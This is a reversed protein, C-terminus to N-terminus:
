EPKKSARSKTIAAHLEQSIKQIKPFLSRMMKQTMMMSDNMVIPLKKKKSKGTDTKYFAIMDQIEKETFHKQYIAVMPAKMKKWNMENKMLSVMQSSYQNFIVQENPKIRLQKSMRQMVQGMQNYVTDIVTDAHMLTLLQEISAKKGVETASSFLSISSLLLVFLFKKM